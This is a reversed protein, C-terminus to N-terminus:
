QQKVAIKEKWAQRSNKKIFGWETRIQKIALVAGYISGGIVSVCLVPGAIGHKRLFQNVNMDPIFNM